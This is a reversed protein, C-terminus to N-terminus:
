RNWILEGLDFVPGDKCVRKYSPGGGATKAADKVPVACGLCAGLGCAMREELSVQCPIPHTELIEAVRNLMARPGCAYIVTDRPDFLGRDQELLETVFGQHCSSGDDTCIKMDAGAAELRDLGVLAAAEAAGVYCVVKRDAHGRRNAYVSALFSLPAIGV